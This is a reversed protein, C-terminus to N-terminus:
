KTVEPTTISEIQVAPRSEVKYDYAPLINSMGASLAIYLLPVLLFTM